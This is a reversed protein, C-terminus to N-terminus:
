AKFKNPLILIKMRIINHLYQRQINELKDKKLIAAPLPNSIRMTISSLQFIKPHIGRFIKIMIKKNKHNARQKIM